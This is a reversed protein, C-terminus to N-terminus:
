RCLEHIRNYARFMGKIEYYDITYEGTITEGRVRILTGNLMAQIINYDEDSSKTWANYEKTYLRFQKNDIGLYIASKIKFQYDAFVSFEETNKANFITVSIYPNRTKKYNGEQKKAFSVMYCQKEEEKTDTYYVLWDYYVGDLVVNDITSPYVCEILTFFLVLFIKKFM